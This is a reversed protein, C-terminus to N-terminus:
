KFKFFFYELSYLISVSAVYRYMELRSSLEKQCEAELKRNSDNLIIKLCKLGSIIFM